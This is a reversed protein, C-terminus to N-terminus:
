ASKVWDTASSFWSRRASRSLRDPARRSRVGGLHAEISSSPSFRDARPCAATRRIWRRDSWPGPSAARRSEWGSRRVAARCTHARASRAPRRGRHADRHRLLRHPAVVAARAFDEDHSSSLRATSCGTRSPRTTPRGIAPRDLAQLGAVADDDVSKLLNTAPSRTSGFGQCGFRGVAPAVADPGLDLSLASRRQRDPDAHGAEEDVPGDECPDDRQQNTEAAHRAIGYSGIACYGIM